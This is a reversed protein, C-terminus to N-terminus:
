YSSKTPVNFGYLICAAALAIVCWAPVGLVDRNTLNWLVSMGPSYGDLYSFAALCLGIGASIWVMPYGSM